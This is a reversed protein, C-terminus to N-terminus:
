TRSSASLILAAEFTLIMTYLYPLIRPPHSDPPQQPLSPPRTTSCFQTASPIALLFLFVLRYVILPSASHVRLVKKLLFTNVDTLLLATVLATEVRYRKRKGSDVSRRAFYVYHAYMPCIPSRRAAYRALRCGIEIGIFNCLLVDLVVSDWWCERLTPIYGSLAWELLEFAVSALWLASRSPLVLAKALWGLLHAFVFRDTVSRLTRATFQCDAAHDHEVPTLCTHARDILSFITCISRPSLSLFSLFALYLATCLHLVHRPFQSLLFPRSWVPDPAKM